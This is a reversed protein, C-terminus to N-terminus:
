AAEEDALRETIAEASEGTKEKIRGVFEEFNGEAVALDDDTLEGWTRKAKAKLQDWRGQWKMGTADM